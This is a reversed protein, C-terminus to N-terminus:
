MAMLIHDASATSFTRDIGNNTNDDNIGVLRYHYTTNGTLGGINGLVGIDALGTQGPVLTTENGYAASVGWQFKYSTPYFANGGQPNITGNLQATVGTINTAPLTTATPAALTFSITLRPPLADTIDGARLVVKINATVDATGDITVRSFSLFFNDTDAPGIAGGGLTFGTRFSTTFPPPQDPCFLGGSGLVSFDTALLTAVVASNPPYEAAATNVLLQSSTITATNPIQQVGNNTAFILPDLVVAQNVFDYCYVGPNFYGWEGLQYITVFDYARSSM